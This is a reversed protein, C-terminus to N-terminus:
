RVDLQAKIWAIEKRNASKKEIKPWGDEIWEKVRFWLGEIQKYNWEHADPVPIIHEKSRRYIGRKWSGSDKYELIQTLPHVYYGTVEGRWGWSGWCYIKGDVGVYTNLEVEQMLHTWIHHGNISRRDLSACFESFVDDWKRGVNKRINGRLAGLKDGFDKSEKHRHRASSHFGGHENEYEADPDSDIKVTGGFKIKYTHELSGAGRRYCETTCKDLDPRM